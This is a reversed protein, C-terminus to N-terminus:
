IFFEQDQIWWEVEKGIIRGTRLPQQQNILAHEAKWILPLELLDLSIARGKTVIVRVIERHRQEESVRADNKTENDVELIFDIQQDNSHPLVLEAEKNDAPWLKRADFGSGLVFMTYYLKDKDDNTFKFKFIQSGPSPTSGVPDIDVRFKPSEIGLTSQLSLVQEFRFLHTLALASERAKEEEDVRVINLGRVPGEYGILTEVGSIDVAGATGVTLYFIINQPQQQFTPPIEVVKVQGSVGRVLYDNLYTKFTSGFTPDVVIWLTKSSGWRFPVLATDSGLNEQLGKRVQASSETKGVAVNSPSGLLTLLEYTFAGYMQGNKRVESAFQDSQCATMVTLDAPNIDWCTELRGGRMSTEAFSEQVAVKDADLNPPPVWGAPSRKPCDSRWSNGSHCSDLVVIVRIQKDSIEKLWANLQWGRVAPRGCCYDSTMLSVDTPRGIPSEATRRLHAGHGSFYFFFYDGESGQERVRYIAKQINEFTPQDIEEEEPINPNSASPTSTLITSEHLQFNTELLHRVGRIDNVCGSLNNLTTQLKRSGKLYLDVGVLLAYRRSAM